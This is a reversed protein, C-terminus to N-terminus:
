PMRYGAGRRGEIEVGAAEFKRRLEHIFNRVSAASNARREPDQYMRELLYWMTLYQPRARNLLWALQAERPTLRIVEGGVM